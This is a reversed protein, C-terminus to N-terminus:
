RSGMWSSLDIVATCYDDTDDLVPQRALDGTRALPALEQTLYAYGTPRGDAGTVPLDIGYTHDTRTLRIYIRCTDVGTYLFGTFTYDEAFWPLGGGVLLSFLSFLRQDGSDVTDNYDFGAASAAIVTNGHSDRTWDQQAAFLETIKPAVTFRAHDVAGAVDLLNGTDPTLEYDVAIGATMAADPSMVIRAHGADARVVGRVRPVVTVGLPALVLPITRCLLLDFRADAVADPM